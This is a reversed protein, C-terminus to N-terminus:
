ERPAAHVRGSRGLSRERGSGEAMHQCDGRRETGNDCADHQNAEPAPLVVARREARAPVERLM